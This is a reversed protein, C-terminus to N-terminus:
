QARLTPGVSPGHSGYRGGGGGQWQPTELCRRAARRMAVFLFPGFRKRGVCVVPQEAVPIPAFEPAAAAYIASPFHRYTDIEPGHVHILRKPLGRLLKPWWHLSMMDKIHFPNVVSAIVVSAEPLLRAIASFLPRLDMLHNFACFNSVLATPQFRQPRGELFIPYDARWPIIRGAAVQDSCTRELEALMGASVDYAIVGFGREAYWRADL